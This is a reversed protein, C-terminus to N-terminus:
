EIEKTSYTILYYGNITVNQPLTITNFDFSADIALNLLKEEDTEDYVSSIDYINYDVEITTGNFSQQREDIIQTIKSSSYVVDITDYDIIVDTYTSPLNTGLTIKNKDVNGGTFYNTGTKDTDTSLYVGLINYIQYQTYVETISSSRQKENTITTIDSSPKFYPFVLNNVEITEGDILTVTSNIVVAKSDNSDEEVTLNNIKSIRPENSFLNVIGNRILARKALINKEGIFSGIDLGYNEDYFLSGKETMFANLIAQVMNDSDSVSLFDGNNNIILDGNEDIALDVGLNEQTM